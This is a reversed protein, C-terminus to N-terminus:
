VEIYFGNSKIILKMSAINGPYDIHIWYIEHSFLIIYEVGDINTTQLPGNSNCIEVLGNLSNGVNLGETYLSVTGDPSLLCVAQIYIPLSSTDEVYFTASYCPSNCYFYILNLLQGGERIAIREKQLSVSVASPIQSGYYYMVLSIAVLTILLLLVTSIIVSTARRNM